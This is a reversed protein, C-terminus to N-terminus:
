KGRMRGNTVAAAGPRSALPFSRAWSATVWVRACATNVMQYSKRNLTFGSAIASWALLPMTGVLALVIAVGSRRLPPHSVRPTIRASASVM